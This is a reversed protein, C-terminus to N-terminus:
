FGWSKLRDTIAQAQTVVERRAADNKRLTDADVGDLMRSIDEVITSVRPDRGCNFGPLLTVLERVSEISSAKFRTEPDALRDVLHGVQERVREWMAAQAAAVAQEQRKRLASGLREIMGDPLGQFASAPPIPSFDFSLRFAARVQDPTPYDEQKALGALNAQAQGMLGPYESIFNELQQEAERKLKSMEELYRQFLMNPLLRAGSNREAHPNHVWPLTLAYHSTRAATYAARVVKLSHDCGALLNKIVRGTNGVAGADEKLKGMLSRDTKEGSWL